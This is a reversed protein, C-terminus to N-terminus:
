RPPGTAPQPRRRALRRPASEPRGASEARPAPGAAGTPGPPDSRGSVVDDTLATIAASPGAVVVTDGHRLVFEAGPAAVTHGARVVAVVSVGFRAGVDRLPHGDYRSGAPVRVRAVDIGVIERELGAVHDVTVVAALLDAVHRAEAADLVVAHAARHPDDPDYIVLDRRGTRHSVVGIRQRRATTATHCTGIGPLAVREIIV